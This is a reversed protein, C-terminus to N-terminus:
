PALYVRVRNSMQGGAEVYLEAPGANVLNPLQVEILYFGVYGPALIAQTVEVQERDLFVQVPAVVKPPNELPAALGTLWVPEVRGLGTALIQLRAGSRAPTMADLVLGSDGDLLLPAGEKDVVIAPVASHLPLGVDRREGGTEWAISVASGSVEFPVQIQSEVESAALVPAAWEDAWAREIRSGLVSLLAGPAAARTAYDAASVVRPDRMRHPALTAYVGYGKVAVFLQNATEDLRVDVVPVGGPLGAGLPEWRTAPSPNLLDLRAMYLGSVTGAYVTGTPRDATVSLAAGPPLNASVDDWFIGGNLSRLVRGGSGGSNESLAALAMRPDAADVHFARVAGASPSRSNRWTRGADTSVWIRGDESAAYRWDGARAFASLEVGLAASTARREAAERVWGADTVQVWAGKQGPSWELLGLGEAVIRVGSRGQPLRLFQQVPLNPLNANLGHWSLGGDASRWVGFRNAVAIEDADAPSVALDLVGDGIISAGQFSTVPRWNAGGDDSRYVDEGFGYWRRGDAPARRTQRREGSDALLFSEQEPPQAVAPLRPQWHERDVTEFVRGDATRAFLSSGDASYWVRDVAGSAAEALQLDVVATGIRRWDLRLGDRTTQAPLSRMSAVTLCLLALLM